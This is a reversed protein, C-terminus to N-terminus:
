REEIVARSRLKQLYAEIVAEGAEKELKAAAQKRVDNWDPEASGRKDTVLIYYVGDEEVEVPGYVVGPEPEDGLIASFERRLRRKEIFGVDGGSERKWDSYKGALLAFKESSPEAALAEDVIKRVETCDERGSNLKLLSFRIKEAEIFEERHKEVYEATQRPTVNVRKMVLGNMLMEVKIREEAMRRLENIDTHFDKARLELEERTRCGLDRAIMNLADEIYEVAVSHGLRDFEEILLRRDILEQLKDARIGAILEPIDEKDALAYVRSEADWTEFLIDGLTVPHGSVSALVSNIEVENVGELTVTEAKVAVAALLVIILFFCKM